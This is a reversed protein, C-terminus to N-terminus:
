GLLRKYADPLYPQLVDIFYPGMPLDGGGLGPINGRIIVAQKLCLGIVMPTNDARTITLRVHDPCDTNPATIPQGINLATAFQEMQPTGAGVTAVSQYANTAQDLIEVNIMTMGELGAAAFPNLLTGANSPNFPATPTLAPTPTWFVNLPPTAQVIIPETPPPAPEPIPRLIFLGICLASACMCVMLLGAGIIGLTTPDRPIWPPLSALFVDLTTAPRQPQQYPDPPPQQQYPDPQQQPDPQQNFYQQGM